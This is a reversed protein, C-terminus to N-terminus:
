RANLSDVPSSTSEEPLATPMHCHGGFHAGPVRVYFHSREADYSALFAAHAGVLQRARVVIGELVQELDRMAVLDRASELVAVLSRERLQAQELSARLAAIEDPRAEGPAHSGAMALPISRARSSAPM